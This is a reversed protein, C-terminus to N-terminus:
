FRLGVSFSFTRPLTYALRSIPKGFKEGKTWHTGEVPTETFPNFRALTPDDVNTLVTRNIKEGNFAAFQDFVNLVQFQAFVSPGGAGSLSRSINLALDTRVMLETRFADRDTFYYSNADPRQAYGPNPVFRRSAVAGAAGYPTGSEIQQVAGLSWTAGLPAFPLEFTGWLRARHRQDGALDGVPFSWAADFYEPYSLVTSSLPGSEADEGNVNGWLRSLTYAGGIRTGADIRYDGQVNLARYRRELDNTNEILKLDFLQGYEDEVQGTTTDVRQAYFNGFSRNVFDVRFTGRGIQRSVGVVLEDSYPSDLSGNIRTSVGPLDVFFPFRSESDFWDFVQRLAAESSVLPGGLNIPDGEYFYGFIAPRGAPSGTDGVNAALAAVYRGYSANVSTRGDGMPDIVLGLRPSVEADKAILNGSADKGRNQDYRVGINVSLHRNVNWTDNAYLSHTRFNTGQSSEIVPWHIIFTSGDNAMVPYITDNDVFSGTAWVHYNSGSQFNDVKRKNNFGDYGFVINHAGAGTSLFYSGKVILNTDAREEDGCVGCFNPAWWYAGTTQDRLPTGFVVDRSRGGDGVFKFMRSSFQAEVFFRSGFSGTYHAVGADQPTERDVLSALDMVSSSSPWASNTEQQRIGTYGFQLRQTPSFAGSLKVEFRKENDTYTFPTNTYGTQRALDQNRNRGAAFFWLRERVVPGGFTYEYSPVVANRKPEGFPTVSRWNDNEFSARFSGRFEDGGSRTVANVVGGTFRGFEASVGSTTVTVEQLADEIFLNLPAGRLNDQMQVGNLLFVNEFSMGGAMMYMGGPGTAHVGPALSVASLVSRATPLEGLLAQQVNTSVQVTNVFTNQQGRVTVSETVAAAQLTVDLAVPETGAVHRTMRIRSFGPMEFTTTYEGPPLFRFIYDGNPSTTTRNRGQLSQSELTVVVGTVPAGHTDSVRGTITGTPNQAAATLPMLSVGVIVSLERAAKRLRYM